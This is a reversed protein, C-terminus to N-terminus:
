NRYFIYFPFYSAGILAVYAIGSFFTLYFTMLGNSDYGYYNLSTPLDYTNAPISIASTNIWM